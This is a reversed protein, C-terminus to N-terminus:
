KVKKERLLLDYSQIRMKADTYAQMVCLDEDGECLGFESPIRGWDHVADVAAFYSSYHWEGKRTPLSKLARDRWKVAFSRM